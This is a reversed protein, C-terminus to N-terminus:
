AQLDDPPALRKLHTRNAWWYIAWGVVFLGGALAVLQGWHAHVATRYLLAMVVNTVFVGVATTWYFRFVPMECAGFAMNLVDFPIFSIWRLLILALPNLHEVARVVSQVRPRDAWRELIPPGIWRGLLYSISATVMSGTWVVILGGVPGYLAFAVLTPIEMPFVIVVSHAALALIVLLPGWPGLAGAFNQLWTAALQFAARIGVTNALTEWGWWGLAVVAAGAVALWIWKHSGIWRIVRRLGTPNM